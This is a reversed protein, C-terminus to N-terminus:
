GHVMRLEECTQLCCRSFGREVALHEKPAKQPSWPGVVGHQSAEKDNRHSRNRKCSEVAAVKRHGQLGGLQLWGLGAGLRGPYVAAINEVALVDVAHTRTLLPGACVTRRVFTQLDQAGWLERQLEDEALM